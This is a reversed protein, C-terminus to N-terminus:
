GPPYASKNNEVIVEGHMGPAHPQCFFPYTGVTNFTVQFSQGQTLLDSPAFPCSGHTYGPWANPTALACTTSGNPMGPTVTHPVTGTNRFTVTTGPKVIITTPSFGPADTANIVNTAVPANLQPILHCNPDAPNCVVIETEMSHHGILSSYPDSYCYTACRMVFTGVVNPTFWLTNVRGPIADLQYYFNPIYPGHIVDLSTENIEYSKNAELYLTNTVLGGPYTFTFAWQKATLQIVADIKKVPIFDTTNMVSASAVGIFLLILAPVITWAIEARGHGRHTEGVPVKRNKRFRVIMYILLAEVVVFVFVAILLITIFLSNIEDAQTTAPAPPVQQATAIPSALLLITIPLVLTAVTGLFFRRASIGRRV